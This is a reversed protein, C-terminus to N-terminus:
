IMSVVQNKGVAVPNDQRGLGNLRNELEEVLRMLTLCLGELKSFLEVIPM